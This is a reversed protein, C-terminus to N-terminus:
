IELILTDELYLYRNLKRLNKREEINYYFSDKKTLLLDEVNRENFIICVDRLKILSHIINRLSDKPSAKNKLAFTVAKKWKNATKPQNETEAQKEEEEKEENRKTKLFNKFLRARREIWDEDMLDVRLLGPLSDLFLQEPLCNFIDAEKLKKGKNKYYITKYELEDELKKFLGKKYLEEEFQKILEKLEEVGAESAEFLKLLVKNKLQLKNEKNQFESQQNGLLDSLFKTSELCAQQVDIHVDFEVILDNISYEKEAIPPRNQKSSSESSPGALAKTPPINAEKLPAIKPSSMVFEKNYSSAKHASKVYSVFLFILIFVKM